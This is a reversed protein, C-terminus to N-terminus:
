EGGDVEEGDDMAAWDAMAAAKRDERRQEERQAPIAEAHEEDARRRGDAYHQTAAWFLTMTVVPAYEVEWPRLDRVSMLKTFMWLPKGDIVPM